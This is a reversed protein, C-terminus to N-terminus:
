HSHSAIECNATDRKVGQSVMDREFMWAKLENLVRKPTKDLNEQLESMDEAIDTKMQDITTQITNHEIRHQIYMGIGTCTLGFCFVLLAVM